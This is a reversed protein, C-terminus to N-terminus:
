ACFKIFSDRFRKTKCFPRRLSLNSRTITSANELFMSRLPHNKTREISHFLNSCLSEGFDIVSMHSSHDLGMIRFARKEFSVLRNLLYRPANCFSPYSYTLLPRVLGTYVRFLTNSPCGSRKLNRLVFLRKAAKKLIFDFHANWKFDASVVIGLFHFSSVQKLSLSPSRHIPSLQLSRKTVFDLTCCKEFNIPLQIADAWSLLSNWEDQFHDESQSRLFHLFTVDDAYKLISTNPCSSSLGDMVLVFLVPGLVSGQPVGSSISVFDSFSNRFAVRQQRNTLFSAIWRIIYSNIDFKVLSNLISSYSLKDFAKRFDVSLVRIAGPTDLFQLIKNQFSVLASITGSGERPIYAFQNVDVRYKVKPLIWKKLVIRQFLKSLVPLISIPRFESILAPSPCKPIPTINALKLCQPFCGVHLSRNFLATLVPALASSCDKFIWSPLGDSGTGRNRLKSLFFKVDSCTLDSIPESSPLDNFSFLSFNSDYQFNSAFYDSFDAASFNINDNGNKRSFRGCSRLSKWLSRANGSSSAKTIFSAKLKRIHCIVENKLRRYKHFNGESFARDRDDILVKLSLQFWEPDTSRLRVTRTPFCSNFFNSLISVLTLFAVNVDPIESMVGLWDYCEVLGHFRAIRSHSFKRIVHKTVTTTTLTSPKWFVCKHDSRGIPPLLKPAITSVYNTFIQDLTNLDRTPFDVLSTLQTLNCITSFSKHLDNFDGCIVFKCDCGYKIYGFDMVDCICSIADQDASNDNWFPHYLIM